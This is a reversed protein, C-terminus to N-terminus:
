GGIGIKDPAIAKARDAQPDDTLSDRVVIPAAKRKAENHNSAEITATTRKGLRVGRFTKSSICHCHRDVTRVLSSSHFRSPSGNGGSLPVAPDILRPPIM